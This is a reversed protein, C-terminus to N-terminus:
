WKGTIKVSLMGKEMGRNQNWGHKASHSQCHSRCFFFFFFFFVCMCVLAQMCFFQRVTYISHKLSKCAPVHHCAFNSLTFLIWKHAWLCVVRIVHSWKKIESSLVASLGHKLTKVPATQITYNTVLSKLETWSDTNVTYLDALALGVQM